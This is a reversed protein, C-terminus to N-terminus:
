GAAPPSTSSANEPSFGAISASNRSTSCCRAAPRIFSANLCAPRAPRSSFTSRIPSPFRNTPSTGRSMPRWWVPSHKPERCRPPSLTRMVGAYTVVVLPVGLKTAVAKVKEAVDQKKGAYWYGDIAIFLKPEIQGFRDLVGQEGFDPSCSSWIAGISAAALMLAVTEPMNPMMAAVRDGKGIGMDRFAQQLRSVANRLRDWSWRDEAKDEGRFIMADDEGARPLLNEAFNLRADPFFRAALMVDGDTLLREGKEGKVGCYDWVASWFAGRDEVSWDHFADYDAFDRGARDSCWKMFRYMPSQKIEADSPTWLPKEHQM